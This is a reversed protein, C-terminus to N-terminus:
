TSVKLWLISAIVFAYIKYTIITMIFIDTTKQKQLIEIITIFSNNEYYLM